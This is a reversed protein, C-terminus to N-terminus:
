RARRRGVFHGLALILGIATWFVILTGVPFGLLTIMRYHVTEPRVDEESLSYIVGIDNKAQEPPDDYRIDFVTLYAGLDLLRRDEPKGSWAIAIEADLDITPSNAKSIGTRQKDFVYLRVSQPTTENQALQMPYVLRETTFSLRIPDVHGTLGNENSLRIATLSWGAEAYGALSKVLKPTIEFKNAALWTDLSATDSAAITTAELPGVRVRSFEDATVEVPDPMLYGLGWWDTEIRAGPVITSEILEFTRADGQSVAAPSPTPIILGATPQDSDMDVMIEMTEKGDEWHLIARENSVSVDSDPPGVVGGCGCAFAPSAGATGVLIASLIGIAVAHRM